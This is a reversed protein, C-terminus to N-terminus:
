RQKQFMVSYYIAELFRVSFMHDIYPDDGLSLGAGMSEIKTKTIEPASFCLREVKRRDRKGCTMPSGAPICNIWM